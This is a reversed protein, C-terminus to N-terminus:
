WIRCLVEGGVKNKRAEKDTMVGKPTSVIASGLGNLVKPIRDSGRYVRRGPVSMRRLGNIVSVGDNYKLLAKILGQKGDDLVVFKKLYREEVLIRCIERKLGSAPFSVTPHKARLANRIRTLM